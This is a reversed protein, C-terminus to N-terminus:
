WWYICLKVFWRWRRGGGGTKIRNTVLIDVNRGYEEYSVSGCYISADTAAYNNSSASKNSAKIYKINKVKDGDIKVKMSSSSSSTIQSSLAYANDAPKTEYIQFRNKTSLKPCKANDPSVM